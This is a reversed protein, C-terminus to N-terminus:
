LKCYAFGRVQPTKLKATHLIVRDYQKITNAIETVPTDVKQDPLVLFRHETKGRQLGSRPLLQQLRVAKRLFVKLGKNKQLFVLNVPLGRSGQFQGAVKGPVPLPRLHKPYKGFGDAICGVRKNGPVAIFPEPFLFGTHHWRRLHSAPKKDSVPNDSGHNKPHIPNIPFVLSDNLSRSKPKTFIM